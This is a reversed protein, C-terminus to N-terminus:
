DKLVQEWASQEAEFWDTWDDGPPRGRQIWRYYAATRLAEDDMSDDFAETERWYAELEADTPKAGLKDAPKKNLLPLERYWRSYENLGTGEASFSAVASPMEHGQGSDPWLVDRIDAYEDKKRTRWNISTLPKCRCRVEVPDFLSQVGNHNENYTERSDHLNKTPM